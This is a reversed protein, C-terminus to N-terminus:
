LSGPKFPSRIPAQAPGRWPIFPWSRLAPSQRITGGAGVTDAVRPLDATYALGSVTHTQPDIHLRLLRFVDENLMGDIEGTLMRTRQIRVLDSVLKKMLRGKVTFSARRRPLVAYLMLNWAQPGVDALDLLWTSFTAPEARGHRIQVGGNSADYTRPQGTAPDQDYELRVIAHVDDGSKGTSFPPLFDRDLLIPASAAAEAVAAASTPRDRWYSKGAGDLVIDAHCSTEIGDVFDQVTLDATFYVGLKQTATLRAAAFSATDILTSAQKLIKLLFFRWLDPGKEILANASGTYSGGADDKMGRSDVRVIFQDARTYDYVATSSTYSTLGSLDATDEFGFLAWASRGANQGSQIKLSLSPSGTWTFTFRHTSNSYTVTWNAGLQTQAHAALQAGTYLGPVLFAVTPSGIGGTTDFDLADNMRVDRSVPSTGGIVIFPGPNGTFAIRGTAKTETWESSPVDIRRTTDRRNAADEDTYVYVKSLTIVDGAKDTPDAVEYDPLGTSADYTVRTPRIGTKTGYLPSRGRGIDAAAMNPFTGLDFHRLPLTLAMFARISQLSFSAAQDTVDFRDITGYYGQWCDGFTIEQGNDHTGGHWFQVSRSVVDRGSLLTEFYGDDSNLLTMSGLGIAESGPFVSEASLEVAPVAGPALRPEVFEYRYVRRIHWDDFDVWGGAVAGGSSNYLRFGITATTADGPARFVFLDRKWEGGTHALAHGHTDTTTSRGDLAMYNGVGSERVRVCPTLGPDLQPHTRYAFEVFYHAGAVVTQAGETCGGSTGGTLGGPDPEIRAGFAGEIVDSRRTVKIGGAGGNDETFDSLDTSSAWLNLGPNTSKEPGFLPEMAGVSGFRKLFSVLVLLSNPDTNTTPQNLHVLLTSTEGPLFYYSGVTDQCDVIREVRILTEGASTVVSVVELPVGEFTEVFTTSWANGNPSWGGSGIQRGLGIDAYARRQCYSQETLEDFGRLGSRLGTAGHGIPSAPRSM